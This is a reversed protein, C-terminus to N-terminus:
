FFWLLNLVLASSNILVFPTQFSAPKRVPGECSRQTSTSNNDRGKAGPPSWLGMHTPPSICLECVTPSGYFLLSHDDLSDKCTHAHMSLQKLWTWSKVVGHVTARRTGRGVPNELCSYQLPNGHGGGIKGYPSFIHLPTSTIFHSLPGCGFLLCPPSWPESDSGSSWGRRRPLNRSAMPTAVWELIRVLSDWPCRLRALQLGYPQWSNSMVSCSLVPYSCLMAKFLKSDETWTLSPTHTHVLQLIKQFTYHRGTKRVQWEWAGGAEEQWVTPEPSGALCGPTQSRHPSPLRKNKM